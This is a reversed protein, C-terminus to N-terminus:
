PTGRLSQDLWAFAACPSEATTVISLQALEEHHILAAPGACYVACNTKQMLSLLERRLQVAQLAQGSYLILARVRQQNIILGLEAAPVSWELLEIRHGAHSLMIALLWAGPECQTQSLNALVVADGTALYNNQYLRAALKCRLWTYAFVREVEDGFNGDWRRQLHALAPELLHECVAPVPFSAMAQNYVADVSTSDFRLLGTLLKESWTNWPTADSPAVLRPRGLLDRVQGVAVGRELWSVITHIQEVNAPTYLRHGKPTRHPQILGYRREWARLTVANVGTQRAVERIPLLDTISSSM